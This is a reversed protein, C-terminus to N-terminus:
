GTEDWLVRHPCSLCHEWFLSYSHWPGSPSSNSPQLALVFCLTSCSTCLLHALGQLAEPNSSACQLHETFESETDGSDDYLVRCFDPNYWSPLPAAAPPSSSGIVSAHLCHDASKPPSCFLQSFCQIPTAGESLWNLWQERCAPSHLPFLRELWPSIETSGFVKQTPAGWTGLWEAM